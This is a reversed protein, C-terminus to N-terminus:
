QPNRSMRAKGMYNAIKKTLRSPNFNRYPFLACNKVKCDVPAYDFGSRSTGNACNNCFAKIAKCPTKHPTKKYAKKAEEKLKSLRANRNATNILHRGPNDKIWKKSRESDINM